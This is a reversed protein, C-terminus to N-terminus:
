IGLDALARGVGGRSRVDLKRYVRSLHFEVTKVSLFLQRAVEANTHGASVALAVRTEQPTLDVAVVSGESPVREGSAALERRARDLWPRARVQAFGHEARHLWERARRPQRSRRLQEGLLLCCRANEFVETTRSMHNVAEALLDHDGDVLGRSRAVFALGLPDVVGDLRTALEDCVARAADVEGLAVYAEVTDVLGAAVHDRAGRGVFPLERLPALVSVASQPDGQTLALAGQAQILWHSNWRSWAGGGESASAIHERVQEGEGRYALLCALRASSTFDPSGLLGSIELAEQLLSEARTWEGERRARESRFFAASVVNEPQGTVRLLHDMRRFREAHYRDDEGLWGPAVAWSILQDPRLGAPDVSDTLRVAERLHDTARRHEGLFTLAQGLAVLGEWDDPQRRHAALREVAAELGERDLTEMALWARWNDLVAAMEPSLRATDLAALQAATDASSSSSRRFMGQGISEDDNEMHILVRKASDDASLGQPDLGDVIACARTGGLCQASWLRLRVREGPQAAFQAALLGVEGAQVRAAPSGALRTAYAELEASLAPDPPLTAATRHRLAADDERGALVRALVENAARVDGAPSASHVAARALPHVFRPPPSMTVLGADECDQLTGEPIGAAAFARRIVEPDGSMDVALLLAARRAAEDLDTFGAAYRDQVASSVPIPDPIAALGSLVEPPLLRAAEAIALPVGALSRAVAEATPQQVTPVVSRLVQAGDAPDLPPVEMRELHRLAPMRDIEPRGAMLVAIPDALLRRATFSVSAVTQPDLWQVDDLAVLLPGDSSADSLAELLGAPSKAGQPSGLALLLVDLGAAPIEREPELAVFRVVRMDSRTAMEAAADLLSTKGMGPGGVLCLAGARGDRAKSLQGALRHLQDGRGVLM